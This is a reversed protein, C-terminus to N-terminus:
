FSTASHKRAKWSPITPLEIRPPKPISVILFLASDSAVIPIM